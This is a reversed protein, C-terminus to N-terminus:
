SKPTGRRMATGILDLVQGVEVLKDGAFRDESQVRLAARKENQKVSQKIAGEGGAAQDLAYSAASFGLEGRIIRKTKSKVKTKIKGRPNKKTVEKRRVQDIIACNLRTKDVLRADLTFWPNTYYTTDTKPYHKRQRERQTAKDKNLGSLDIELRVPDRESIDDRMLRILPLVFDRLENGVDKSKLRKHRFLQVIWFVIVGGLVGGSWRPLGSMLLIVAAITGLILFVVSWGLWKGVRKRQADGLEDFAALPALWALWEEITKVARIKKQAIFERQEGSLHKYSVLVDANAM